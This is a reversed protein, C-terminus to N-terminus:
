IMEAQVSRIGHRTSRTGAYRSIRVRASSAFAPNVVPQNAGVREVVQTARKAESEHNEGAADRAPERETRRTRGWDARGKCTRAASAAGLAAQLLYAEARLM